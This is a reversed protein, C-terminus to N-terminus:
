NLQQQKSEYDTTVGGLSKMIEVAHRRIFEPPLANGIMLAVRSRGKSLDFKYDIPFTQFIAAERLTISRNEDPHLYRGKSPNGCGGTMTPSVQDWAMRGYVDRFGGAHNQHCKLVLHDPLSTRSGGDHPIHRIIEEVHPARKPMFDHLPDGSSGMPELKVAELAKRVSIHESHEPRVIKGTRSALLIMRRRRQPVGYDAANEVSITRRGVRYGLQNLRRLFQSIRKDQALAPVNEMMITKPWLAEVFRLFEFLLDNRYDNVALAKKRTRLTSFGQCPPCGALLDLDGPRLGLKRMLAVAGLTRIDEEFCYVNPHNIRFTNAPIAEVEVGGLVAFGAQKLGLTLGGAGCFLDIATPRIVTECEM